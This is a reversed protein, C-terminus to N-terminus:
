PDLPNIVAGAGTQIGCGLPGLLELSVDDKVPVVNRENALSFTTFSSQGFFMNRVEEGDDHIPTLGNSVWRGAFNHEFFDECYAMDGEPCNRCSGDYDFTLVVRDGPEVKTVGEGGAEVISSGEHGLM